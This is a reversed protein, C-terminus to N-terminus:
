DLNENADEENNLNSPVHIRRQVKPVVPTPSVKKSAPLDCALPYDPIPVRVPPMDYQPYFYERHSYGRQNTVNIQELLRIIESYLTQMERHIMQMDVRMEHLNHELYRIDDHIGQLENDVKDVDITPAKEWISEHKRWGPNSM